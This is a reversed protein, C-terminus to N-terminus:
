ILVSNNAFRLRRDVIQKTKVETLTRILTLNVQARIM